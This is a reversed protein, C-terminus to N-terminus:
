GRGGHLVLTRGSTYTFHAEWHRVPQGALPGTPGYFAGTEIGVVRANVLPDAPTRSADARAFQESQTLALGPLNRPSM